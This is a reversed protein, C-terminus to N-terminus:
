TWSAARRRLQTGAAPPNVLMWAPSDIVLSRVTLPGSGTNKIRVTATDHVVNNPPQYLDYQQTTPNWVKKVDPPQMQIRNFVLRDPFPAGDLNQLGIEPGAPAPRVNRIIGVIDQNDYSGAADSPFEDFAFM